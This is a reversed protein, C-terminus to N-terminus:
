HIGPYFFLTEVVYVLFFFLATNFLYLGLRVFEILLLLRKELIMQSVGYIRKFSASLNNSLAGLTIMQVEAASFIHFHKLTNSFVEGRIIAASMAQVRRKFFLNGIVAVSYLACKQASAGGKLLVGYLLSLREREIALVVGSVVPLYCLVADYILKAKKYFRILLKLSILLFFMVVVTRLLHVTFLATLMDFFKILKPTPNGFVYLAYYFDKLYHLRLFFLGSFLVVAISLQPMAVLFIKQSFSVRKTSQDCYQLIASLEERTHAFSILQLTSSSFLREHKQLAESFSFGKSLKEIIDRLVHALRPNNLHAAIIFLANKIPIGMDLMGALQYYFMSLDFKRVPFFRSGFQKLVVFMVQFFAMKEISLVLIGASQLRSRLTLESEANYRGQVLHESANKGKFNYWTM